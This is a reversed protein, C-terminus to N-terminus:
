DIRYLLWANPYASRLKDRAQVVSAYNDFSAAIVRYKGTDPNQAVQASYKKAILTKRLNNAEDINDFSGCVVNYPYLTGGNMVILREKRCNQADAPVPATTTVPTTSLELETPTLKSRVPRVSLGKYREDSHSASPILEGFTFLACSYLPNEDLSSTWYRGQARKNKLEGMFTVSWNYNEIMFETCPLILVNGNKGKTHVEKNGDALEVESWKCEYALEEWQKKTPIHWPTGWNQTAADDIADLMKKNDLIGDNPSDCYKTMQNEHLWSEKPNKKWFKYTQWTYVNKPKTEGWAFYYGTDHPSSAGVNMTAWLTGSPLGLDVYEHKQTPKQTTTSQQPPIHDDQAHLFFTGTLMILFIYYKKM